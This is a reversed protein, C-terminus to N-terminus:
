VFILAFSVLTNNRWAKVHRARPRAVDDLGTMVDTVATPRESPTRSRCPGNSRATTPPNGTERRRSRWRAPRFSRGLRFLWAWARPGAGFLWAGQCAM